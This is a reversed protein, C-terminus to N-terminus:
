ADMLLYIYRLIEPLYIQYIIYTQLLHICLTRLECGGDRGPPPRCVGSWLPGLRNPGRLISHGSGSGSTHATNTSISDLSQPVGGMNDMDLVTYMVDGAQLPVLSQFANTSSM